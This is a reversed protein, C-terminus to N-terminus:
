RSVTGSLARSIVYGALLGDAGPVSTYDPFDNVEIVVLGHDTEVCDVGFLELGFTEACKLALEKMEVSLPVPHPQDMEKKAAPHIGAKVLCSPKRVPWIEKGIGYLKLDYGDNMVFHQAFAVEEPWKISSLGSTSSVIRLDRCNDGFVPKLVVPYASEPLHMALRDTPGIFSDPMPIGASSLAVAMEAKNLVAAIADKRNITRLGESEAWSLLSLVGASRGRCVVIDIDRLWGSDGVRFASEEPDIIKVTHGRARLMATLGSPQLHSLYRREPILAIRLTM